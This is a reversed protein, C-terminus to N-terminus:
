KLRNEHVFGSTNNELGLKKLIPNPTDLNKQIQTIDRIIGKVTFYGLIIWLILLGLRSMNADRNM